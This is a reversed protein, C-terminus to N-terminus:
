HWVGLTVSTQDATEKIAAPLSVPSTDDFVSDALVGTSSDVVTGTDFGLSNQEKATAARFAALSTYVNPNGAGNSWIAFWSPSGNSRNYINSRFTLAMDAAKVQHSYDEVCVMCNAAGAGKGVVNNNVSIQRLVWPVTSDPNPRRPDHGPTSTQSNRRSDQVLNIARDNGVLTNNWIELKDANNIKFGFGKNNLVLNDVLVATSSIEFSLGHSANGIMNNGHVDADYVSEDLWLGTGYNDSFLSDGVDVGRSRTIKFGGAAPTSNFREVNNKTVRLKDAVMGYAANANIGMLGNGQSTIRTLKANDGYVGMGISANDVVTLNEAVNNKKELTVSGMMWLSTAYRRVGLGKIAAGDARVSIAKQLDSVRVQKGSPNSGLYIRDAADDVYFTGDKVLSLSKVEQLRAGDVFVMDPHAAMPYSTSLFRWAEATGDAVGKTFGPSSDFNHTYPTYWTSGSQTWASVVSSGDLWVEEGPYGTVTVAKSITVDEHYTGARVVVTGGASAKDVGQAITLLPKDLAGTGSASGWPAVFVAGAPITGSRNKAALAGASAAARGSATPQTVVGTTPTSTTPTATPTTATPTSATPTPTATTRPTPTPTPTSTTKVTKASVFRVKLSSRKASKSLYAWVRKTGKATLRRSTSDSAALQFGPQDDGRIWARAKISVTKSGTVQLHIRVKDGTSVKGPLRKSALVTEKGGRVRGVFLAMSGDTRVRVKARYGRATSAKGAWRTAVGLYLVGKRSAPITLDSAVDGANFKGAIEVHKTAGRKVKLYGSSDAATAMSTTVLILSVVVVIAAAVAVLRRWVQEM